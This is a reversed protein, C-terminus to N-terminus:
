ALASDPTDSRVAIDVTARVHTGRDHRGDVRITKGTPGDDASGSLTLVDGPFAPQALRLTLRRFTTAPGFISSVYRTVLGATTVISAIIDDLGQGQAVDHDHHVPEHDNSALAGAIILSRSLPIRLTSLRIGTSESATGTGRQSSVTPEPSFYMTRSRMTGVVDGRQNRFEFAITVFHGPGLATRKRPSVSEVWSLETLTDGPRVPQLYEQEYDTAVVATFGNDASLERVQTHLTPFAARARSGIPMTWTQLMAPPALVGGHGAEVAADEDRYVPNDEGLAACWTRIAHDSVVIEASRTVPDAAHPLVALAATLDGLPPQSTTM